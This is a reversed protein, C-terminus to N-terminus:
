MELAEDLLRAIWRILLVVAIFVIAFSLVTVM